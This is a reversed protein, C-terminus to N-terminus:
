LNNKLFNTFGPFFSKKLEPLGVGTLWLDVHSNANSGTVKPKRTGEELWEV